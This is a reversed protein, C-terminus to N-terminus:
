KKKLQQLILPFGLAVLKMPRENLRIPPAVALRKLQNGARTARVCLCVCFCARARAQLICRFFNGPREGHYRTGRRLQIRWLQRCLNQARPVPRRQLARRFPRSLRAPILQRGVPAGHPVDAEIVVLGGCRFM